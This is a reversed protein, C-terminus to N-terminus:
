TQHAPAAPSSMSPESPREPHTAPEHRPLRLAAALGLAAIAAAGVWGLWLGDYVGDPGSAARTALPILVALGLATGLQAASNLVGASVGRDAPEVTATGVATSAVSAVGLGLGMLAFSSLLRLV